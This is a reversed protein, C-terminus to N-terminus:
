LAGLAASALNANSVGYIHVNVNEPPNYPDLCVICCNSDVAEFEYSDTTGCSVIQTGSFKKKWKIKCCCCGTLLVILIFIIDFPILFFSVGFILFIVFALLLPYFLIGTITRCPHATACDWWLWHIFCMQCSVIAWQCSPPECGCAEACDTEIEIGLPVRHGSYCCSKVFDQNREPKPKENPPGQQTAM